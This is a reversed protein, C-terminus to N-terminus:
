RDLLVGNAHAVAVPESGDRRIRLVERTPWCGAFVDTGDRSIEVGNPGAFPGGPV